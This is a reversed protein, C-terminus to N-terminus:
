LDEVYTRYFSAFPVLNPNDLSGINEKVQGSESYQLKEMSIVHRYREDMSSYIYQKVTSIAKKDQEYNYETTVIEKVLKIM